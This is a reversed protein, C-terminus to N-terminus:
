DIKLQEICWTILVLKQFLLLVNEKMFPTHFYRIEKQADLAM